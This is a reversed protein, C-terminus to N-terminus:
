HVCVCFFMAMGQRSEEVTQMIDKKHCNYNMRLENSYEHLTERSDLSKHTSQGDDSEDSSSTYALEM